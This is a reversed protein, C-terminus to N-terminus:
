TVKKEPGYQRSKEKGLLSREGERNLEPRGLAEAPERWGPGKGRPSERGATETGGAKGPSRRLLFRVPLEDGLLRGGGLGFPVVFGPRGHPEQVSALRAHVHADLIGPLM